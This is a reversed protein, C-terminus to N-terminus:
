QKIINDVISYYLCLDKRLVEGSQVLDLIMFDDSLKVLHDKGLCREITKLYSKELSPTVRDNPFTSLKIELCLEHKVHKPKPPTEIDHSRDRKNPTINFKNPTMWSDQNDEYAKLDPFLTNIIMSYRFDPRLSRRSPCKARCTPCYLHTLALTVFDIYVPNKLIGLCIPCKLESRISDTFSEANNEVIQSDM